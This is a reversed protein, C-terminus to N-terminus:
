RESGKNKPLVENTTPGWFSGTIEKGTNTQIQIDFSIRSPDGSVTVSGAKFVEYGHTLGTETNYVITVSGNFLVSAVENPLFAYEGLPMSISNSLIVFNLLSGEGSLIGNVQKFNPGLFQYEHKYVNPVYEGRFFYAVRNFQLARGDFRINCSYTEEKKCGLLCVIIITIWLVPQLLVSKNM